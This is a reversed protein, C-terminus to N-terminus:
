TEARASRRPKAASEGSPSVPSQVPPRVPEQLLHRDLGDRRLQPSFYQGGDRVYSIADLLHRSPGNKLIYGDGGARVVERIIDDDSTGSMVLIRTGPVESRVRRVIEIGHLKPLNLDIVAVDPRLARIRDMANDGDPCQAVIRFRSTSELVAALGDRRLADEDALLITIKDSDAM